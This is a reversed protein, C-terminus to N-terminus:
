VKKREDDMRDKFFLEQMDTCCGALGFGSGSGVSRVRREYEQKNGNKAYDKAMADLVIRRVGAVLISWEGKLEVNRRAEEHEVYYKCRGFVYNIFQVPTVKNEMDMATM